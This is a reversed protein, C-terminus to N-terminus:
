PAERNQLRVPLSQFSFIGGFGASQPLRDPDLRFGPFRGLWERLGV